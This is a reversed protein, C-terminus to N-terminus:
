TVAGGYGWALNHQKRIQKFHISVVAAVVATVAVVAVVAVVATVAIAPSLLLM